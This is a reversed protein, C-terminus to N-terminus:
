KGAHKSFGKLQIETKIGIEQVFYADHSVAVVTGQYRKIVDTIIEMSQIDLNNTPEDLIIMDPTQNGLMLCCFALRMKEGGSLHVCPKDWTEHPFLYRSLLMKIEQELFYHTNYQQAQEYVTLENRILSYEQDMYIYSFDAKEVTGKQPSLTGTILKLLTTKGSGNDGRIIYRDGSRIIFDLPDQWLSTDNYGFTIKEAKILMKGTHLNPSNFNIKMSKGDPLDKRLQNISDLLTAAKEAHIDNLQTGSKEAKDKFVNMALKGVGKKENLKKGRAEHKQKREAVERATKKALRLEKEKEELSAQLAQLQIEKQEKYFLYNGGYATVGNPNLEYTVPLLNLLTIDHSVVLITARSSTIFDYLKQRSEADLHNSPEDLLIIEPSHIQLGSLFVKTKEGGSLTAMSQTLEIHALGWSSLAAICREEINWDDNLTTFNSLSADGELIAHLAKIKEEIFLAQMVTQTDYQGFHQPVYYPSSHSIIEGENPSLHGALIHLLTSKGSGNPGVLAVKEGKHLIFSTHRFLTENDAHIYAIQQIILSM